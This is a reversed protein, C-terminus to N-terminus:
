VLSPQDESLKIRFGGELVCWVADRELTLTDSTTVIAEISKAIKVDEVKNRRM